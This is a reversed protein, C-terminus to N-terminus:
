SVPPNTYSQPLGEDRLHVVDHGAQRLAQVTSQSIGMDGLFKM